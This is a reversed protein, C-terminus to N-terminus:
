LDEPCRGYGAVVEVGPTDFLSGFSCCPRPEFEEDAVGATALLRLEFVVAVTREQLNVSCDFWDKM